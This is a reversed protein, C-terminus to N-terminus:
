WLSSDSIQRAIYNAGVVLAFGIVANFMDAAGGLASNGGELGIRYVFSSIIDATEYTNSNYLLIVREYGLNLLNGIQLVIMTILTPSMGPLTVYRIEQLKNGGDIKLAEYLTPSIGMVAAFYIIANYGTAKWIGTMIFMPRFYSAEQVINTSESILGLSILLDALLGTGSNGNYLLTIVLGTIIVESLFYPLFTLTQVLQRYRIHRIESLLIAVIIPVPFAFILNYLSILLTNRFARWFESAFVGEILVQFNYFGVFDSGLLGANARYDKFAILLGGMPKYQFLLFWLIIPALLAYLRWDKVIIKGYELVRSNEIAEQFYSKKTSTKSLEQVNENGIM